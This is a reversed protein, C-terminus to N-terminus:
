VVTFNAMMAMDEHELNHCHMVYRGRYGDFRTIVELTELPGLDVTDKWGIDGPRTPGGNRSLVQFAVLHMHVPHAAVGTFRWIEVDGFRPSAWDRETDFTLGNITWRHPLFGTPRPPGGHQHGAGLELALFFDRTRVADERRLAPVTSLRDPIHTEDKMRRVVHFQMVADTSGFGFTNRITVRSGDPYASFDLITDIREGPAITIVRRRVPRELLGGDSGIQILEGGTDLELRYARANSANIWRLRYRGASVEHVPWPAGNVLITDGLVGALYLPHVGPYAQDPALAPYAFQADADFSRDALVLELDRDAEPLPHAREEDDSIICAGALGAYVNPGTFDMAHDHYWLTAARQDMPYIYDREGVTTHGPMALGSEISKPTRGSAPLLLDTPYGDQEPPMRGGHLHMVTAIDLENRVRVSVPQGRRARITPGPFTGDYGTIRTRTGPIIEQEAIRQVFSVSGGTRQAPRPLPVVFRPPLPRDSRVLAPLQNAAESAGRSSLVSLGTAAGIVLAGGGLRLLQRRNM